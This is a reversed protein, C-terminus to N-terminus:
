RGLRHHGHELAGLAVGPEVQLQQFFDGRVEALHALLVRLELAVELTDIRADQDGLYRSAHEGVHFALEFLLAGLILEILYQGLNRAHAFVQSEDRQYGGRRLDDASLRHDIHESTLAVLGDGLFGGAHELTLVAGRGRWEVGLQLSTHQIAALDNGAARGVQELGFHVLQGGLELANGPLFADLQGGVLDVVHQSVRQERLDAQFEQFVAAVRRGELRRRGTLFGRSALGALGLDVGDLDIAFGEDHLHVLAAIDFADLGDTARRTGCRRRGRDCCATALRLSRRQGTIDELYQHLGALSHLLTM